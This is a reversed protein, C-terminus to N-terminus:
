EMKPVAAVEPNPYADPDPNPSHICKFDKEILISLRKGDALAQEASIGVRDTTIWDSAAGSPIQIRLTGNRYVARPAALTSLSELGYALSAGHGFEVAEELWGTKSFQAVEAQNLRLRLANGHIRLKV